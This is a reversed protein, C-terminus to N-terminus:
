NDKICRVSFGDTKDVGKVKGKDRFSKITGTYLGLACSETVSSETSSWFNANSGLFDYADSGLYGAPLASFGSENTGDWGTSTKLKGGAISDGGLFDTLIKWEADTPLHWGAPCVVNATEWNYLYGYKAVNKKDNNYVWCGKNTKYALNEAMWTQTGIKVTKYTKGDRQDTFQNANKNNTQQQAGLSLSIVAFLVFTSFLKRM